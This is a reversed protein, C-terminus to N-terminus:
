LSLRLLSSVSLGLMNVLFVYLSDKMYERNNLSADIGARVLPLLFTIAVSIGVVLAIDDKKILSSFMIFGIANAVIFNSIFKKHIDEKKISINEM